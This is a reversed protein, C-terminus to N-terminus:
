ERQRVHPALDAAASVQGLTTETALMKILDVQAYRGANSLQERAWGFRFTDLGGAGSIWFPHALVGVRSILRRLLVKRSGDRIEAYDIQAPSADLSWQGASGGQPYQYRGERILMDFTSIPPEAVVCYESALKSRWEAGIRRKEELGKGFPGVQDDSDVDIARDGCQAKPLLRYTRSSM